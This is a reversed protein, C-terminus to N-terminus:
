VDGGRGSECGEGGGARDEEDVDAGVVDEGACLPVRWVFDSGGRMWWVQVSFGLEFALLSYKSLILSHPLL